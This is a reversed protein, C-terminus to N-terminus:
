FFLFDTSIYEQDANFNKKKYMKKYINKPIKFDTILSMEM